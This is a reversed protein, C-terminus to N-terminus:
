VSSSRPTPAFGAGSGQSTVTCVSTDIVGHSSADSLGVAQLKAHAKHYTKGVLRPVTVKCTLHVTGNSSVTRERQSTVICHKPELPTVAWEPNVGLNMLKAEAAGASTGSLNPVTM